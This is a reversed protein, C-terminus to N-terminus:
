GQPMNYYILMKRLVYKCYVVDKTMKNTTQLYKVKKIIKLM